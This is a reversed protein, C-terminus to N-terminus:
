GFRKILAAFGERAGEIKEYDVCYAIRFHGPAGFATGPSLFIGYEKAATCFALDDGGPAKPFLYFAGQPLECEYGLETLMKHFATRNKDYLDIDVSAELCYPLIRQLLSPANVFGCIRNAVSLAAIVQEFDAMEPHVAIFGIRDGPISLAKSYSYAVFTNEYYHAVFPVEAGDYVLARYPEDSILYIEHGFEEQKKYLVQAISALTRNDYLAGTPNNPTNILLAKTKPGIAAELEPIDPQFDPLTPVTNLIGDYNSVYNRYEGFFPRFTLVEDGPELITKLIINLAGAAGNTIVISKMYMNCHYTRRIYEAVAERVDVCGANDSYGHVTIPDEEKLVKQISESVIDPPAVSPNGLSFDFLKDKGYKDAYRKGEEFMARIISSGAVFDQMKKSIM